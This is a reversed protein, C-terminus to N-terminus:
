ARPGLLGSRTYDGRPCELPPTESLRRWGSIKIMKIVKIDKIGQIM